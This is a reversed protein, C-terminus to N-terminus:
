RRIVAARGEPGVCGERYVGEACKVGGAPRVVEAPPRVVVAGVPAAPAVGPRRVVAAGNPGVCGERYVGAACEIASADAAGLALILGAAAMSRFRTTM